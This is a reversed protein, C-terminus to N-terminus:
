VIDLYTKRSPSPFAQSLFAIDEQTLTVKQSEVLEKVHAANGSRPIAITNKQYLVFALLIQIPSAQYKEAIKKVSPHSLLGRRLSGGQALPCYAM